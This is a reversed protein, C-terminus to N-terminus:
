LCLLRLVESLRGERDERGDKRERVPALCAEKSPHIDEPAPERSITQLDLPEM